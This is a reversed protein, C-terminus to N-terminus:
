KWSCDKAVGVFSVQFLDGTWVVNGEIRKRGRDRKGRLFEILRRWFGGLLGNHGTLGARKHNEINREANSDWIYLKKQGREGKVM